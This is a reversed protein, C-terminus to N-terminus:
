PRASSKFYVPVDPEDEGRSVQLNAVGAATQLDIHHHDLAVPHPWLREPALSEFAVQCM